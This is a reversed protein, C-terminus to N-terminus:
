KFMIFSSIFSSFDLPLVWDKYNDMSANQHHPPPPLPTPTVGVQFYGAQCTCFLSPLPSVQNSRCNFISEKHVCVNSFNAFGSKKGSIYCLFFKSTQWDLNYQYKPWHTQLLDDPNNCHVAEQIAQRVVQQALELSDLICSGALSIQLTPYKSWM